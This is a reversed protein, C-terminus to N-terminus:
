TNVAASPERTQEAPLCERCGTAEGSVNLGPGAGVSGIHVALSEEFHNLSRVALAQDGVLLNSPMIFLVHLVDHGIASMVAITPLAVDAVALEICGSGQGPMDVRWNVLLLSVVTGIM